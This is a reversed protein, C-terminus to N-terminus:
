KCDTIEEEEEKKPCIKDNEQSFYSIQSIKPFISYHKELTFIQNLIILNQPNKKKWIKL